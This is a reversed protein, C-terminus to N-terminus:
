FPWLVQLLSTLWGQRQQDSVDGDGVYQIEADALRSSSVSGDAGVDTQRVIGSVYLHREEEGIVVVKTGEVYLDGNPLMAQVRVPLMASVQGRRQIKGGGSFDYDSKAGFLAKWDVDPKLKELAGSLGFNQESSRELQTSADHSASDSEEVRIVIVDGVNSPRVDEILGFNAGAALSGAGITSSVAYVGPEFARHRREVSPREHACAGLGLMMGGALTVGTMMVGFWKAAYRAVTYKAAAYKM